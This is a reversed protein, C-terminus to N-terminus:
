LRGVGGSSKEENSDRDKPDKFQTHGRIALAGM